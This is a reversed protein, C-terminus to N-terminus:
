EVHKWTRRNIIDAIAWISVGYEAALQRHTVGGARHRTRIEQVQSTNVAATWVMEGRTRREPRTRSGSRDGRAACGPHTRSGHREGRATREPHTHRGNRTGTAARGKAVMDAMNAAHSDRWLHRPNNCAPNDGGPCNHLVNLDGPDIGTAITHAVRHAMVQVTKFCHAGYERNSWKKGQWLWCDDPGAIAVKAWFELIREPTLHPLIPRLM